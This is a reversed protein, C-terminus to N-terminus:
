LRWRRLAEDALWGLTEQTRTEWFQRREAAWDRYFEDAFPGKLLTAAAALQRRRPKPAPTRGPASWSRWCRPATM